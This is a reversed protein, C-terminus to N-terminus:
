TRFPMEMEVSFGGDAGNRLTMRSANGYLGELRARTNALGIGERDRPQKSSALGGGSDRVVVQLVSGERRAAIGIVGRDARPEIGHKIANEVLPQLILTPVRADLAAADLEREVKLRDGFRVQQIDLYRDLLELERRLTVEQQASGDLALRLLESLNTIMEDAARPDKHVLTAVANLTNFLFHPQLQAQLAQLRAQALSAELEAARRQREESRRHYALAHALCVIVWYIPVHVRILAVTVFPVPPQPAPEGRQNFRRDGASAPPVFGDRPGPPNFPPNQMPGYGRPPVRDGDRMFPERGPGPQNNPPNNFDRRPQPLPPEVAGSRPNPQGKPEENGRPQQQPGAQMGRERFEPRTNSPPLNTGGRRFPSQVQGGGPGIGRAPPPPQPLQSGVFECALLAGTCAILHAPLSAKWRGGDFPCKTALWVVMPGLAAWPLWDRLAALFAQDWTMAGVFVLQAAFVLVVLAWVAYALAWRLVRATLDATPQM